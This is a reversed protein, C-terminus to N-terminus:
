TPDRLLDDVDEEWSEDERVDDLPNVLEATVRTGDSFHYNPKLTVTWVNYNDSVPRTM